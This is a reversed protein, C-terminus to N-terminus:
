SRSLAGAPRYSIDNWLIWPDYREILERWHKEFYEVCERGTDSGALLEGSSERWAYSM